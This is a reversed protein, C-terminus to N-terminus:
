LIEEGFLAYRGLASGSGIEWQKRGSGPTVGLCRRLEWAANQNSLKLVHVGRDSPRL